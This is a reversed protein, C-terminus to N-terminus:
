TRNLRLSLAFHNRYDICSASTNRKLLHCGFLIILNLNALRREKRRCSNLRNIIAVFYKRENRRNVNCTDLEPLIPSDGLCLTQGSFAQLRFRRLKGTVGLFQFSM